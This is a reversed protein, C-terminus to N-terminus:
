VRAKVRQRDANLGALAVGREAAALRAEARALLGRTALSRHTVNARQAVAHEKRASVLAERALSLTTTVITELPSGVTPLTLCLYVEGVTPWTSTRDHASHVVLGIVSEGTL